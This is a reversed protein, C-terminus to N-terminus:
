QSSPPTARELRDLLRALPALERYRQAVPRAYGVFRPTDEVYGPKRDRHAIRSFIGLVKLHRQLGMWEFGRFFAAFDPDVPLGARRAKEWYRITWDLVAEEPWSIFADKFLSVVDYCIPGIVADQFDLIGPNPTSVMLNRPMYDRHVFVQPQALHDAILTEFVRTLSEREAADLTTRLHVAIYWDPFLELERRLLARDYPPLAGARTARQWQVIADTAADFLAKANSADLASLYTTSGLDSVLLFGRELDQALIRPANLGAERLLNAVHVFPRCDENPPPADMAILTREGFASKEPTIRFYRRFSADASAPAMAFADTSLSSAIWAALLTARADAGTPQTM